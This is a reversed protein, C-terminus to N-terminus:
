FRVTIKKKGKVLDPSLDYAVDTFHVPQEPSKQDIKQEGVKQGDVLVDVNAPRYADNSFTVLLKLAHGSEVPMDFSFWKKAVRGYHGEVELPTSEEGQENFDRESQM